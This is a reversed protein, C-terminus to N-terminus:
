IRARRWAVLLAAAAFLPAMARPEPVIQQAISVNDIGFGALETDYITLGAIDPGGPDTLGFRQFGLTTNTVSGISNGNADYADITLAGLTDLYGATLLVAPVPTTFLISVPQAFTYPAGTLVPSDPSAPDATIAVYDNADYVLQLPLGPASPAQITVPYTGVPTQGQFYSGFYIASGDFPGGSIAYPLYGYNGPLYEDFTIPTTGGVILAGTPDVTQLAAGATGHVSIAAAVSLVGAALFRM